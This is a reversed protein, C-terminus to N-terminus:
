ANQMGISHARSSLGRFIKPGQDIRFPALKEDGESGRGVLFSASAQGETGGFRYLINFGILPVFLKRGGAEFQHVEELPLRAVSKLSVSGLPAILTMRDDSAAPNQFFTAIERDQGVHATFLHGEVLVDRAPASGVNGIVIEFMLMVEKETIVVRDPVFEVNLQPKLKTSVITGDSPPKPASAPVTGAPPVPDPRPGPAPGGRSPVPDARPRLPSAFDPEVADPAHGAFAMRGPDGHRRSRDRRSWALFAGGGILALLAAIWPWSISGSDSVAPSAALASGTADPQPAPNTTVEHPLSPTIPPENGTIGAPLSPGGNTSVPTPRQAMARGPAPAAAEAPVAEGSRPQATATDVPQSPTAAPRDAPRTVTGQLNFDRLQSPGITEASPPPAATVDIPADTSQAGAPAAVALAVAAAMGGLNGITMRRLATM